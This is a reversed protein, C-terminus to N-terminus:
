LVEREMEECVIVFTETAIEDSNASFNPSRYESPWANRLKWRLSSVGVENKLVVAISEKRAEDLKGQEVKDRWEYLKNNGDVKRTIELDGYETKAWLQKSHPADEGGRFESRKTQHRPLKIEELGAVEENDLELVFREGRFPGHLDPM